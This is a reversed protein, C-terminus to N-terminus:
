SDGLIRSLLKEYVRPLVLKELEQIQVWRFQPGLDEEPESEIKWADLSQPLGMDYPAKAEGLMAEGHMVEGHMVEGQMVEGQMVEGQMIEGQKAGGQMAEGPVSFGKIGVPRLVQVRWDVHTFLHREEAIRAFSNLRQSHQSVMESDHVQQLLTLMDTEVQDPINDLSEVHSVRLKGSTRPEAPYELAPLEWMGALLGAEPRRHMLLYGNQEYWLAYVDVCRKAQKPKRVPLRAQSGDRYATCNQQLPCRPCDPSRPTCVMAGLEMVAQTLISPTVLQLWQEVMATIEQKVKSSEIPAELGLFRAMVRLVNGDVAPVPEDFAISLVAGATYPGIGPLGRIETESSPMTGGFEAMVVQAARHLNRARSYYGLGQWLKAVEEFDAAALASVTPYKSMFAEYYPIVTEVRTQQLM